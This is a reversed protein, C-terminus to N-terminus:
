SYEGIYDATARRAMDMLNQGGFSDPQVLVLALRRSYASVCAEAMPPLFGVIECGLSERIQAPKLPMALPIRNVIVASIRRMGIGWNSLLSLMAQSVCITLSAAELGTCDYNCYRVAAETSTM